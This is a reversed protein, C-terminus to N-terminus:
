SPFYAKPTSPWTQSKMVVHVTPWWDGKEMSSDQCPYHLPNGNGEGPPRGSRPILGMNGVNCTSEKGGLGSALGPFSFIRWNQIIMNRPLTKM